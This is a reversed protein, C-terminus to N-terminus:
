MIREYVGEIQIGDMIDVVGTAYCYVTHKPVTVIRSAFSTSVDSSICDLIIGDNEM